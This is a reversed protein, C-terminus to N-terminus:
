ASTRDQIPMEKYDNYLEDLHADVYARSGILISVNFVPDAEWWGSLVFDREVEKGRVLLKLTM